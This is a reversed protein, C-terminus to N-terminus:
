SVLLDTALQTELVAVVIDGVLHLELHDLTDATVPAGLTDIAIYIEIPESTVSQQNLTDEAYVRYSVKTIGSSAWNFSDTFTNTPHYVTAAPTYAGDNISRKVKYKGASNVAMNPEANLDWELKPCSGSSEHDYRLNKVRSPPLGAISDMNRVVLIDMYARDYVDIGVSNIYVGVNTAEFFASDTRWIAAPPNTYPSIVDGVTFLDYIDGGHDSGSTVNGVSNTALSYPGRSAPGSSLSPQNAAHWTKYSGDSNRYYSSGADTIYIFERENYGGFPNAAGKEIIDWRHWGSSDVQGEAVLSWDYNGEACLMHAKSDPFQTAHQEIFYYALLGNPMSGEGGGTPSYTTEFGDQYRYELLLSQEPNTNALPIEILTCADLTGSSSIDGTNISFLRMSDAPTSLSVMRRKNTASLTDMWGIYTKEAGLYSGYANLANVSYGLFYNPNRTATVATGPLTSKKPDSFHNGGILHHSIEHIITGMFTAGQEEIYRNAYINPGFLTVGRSRDFYYGTSSTFGSSPLSLEAKNTVPIRSSPTNRLICLTLDLTNNSEFKWENNGYSWNDYREFSLADAVFLSDIKQLIHRTLTDGAATGYTDVYYDEGYDLTVQYFDGLLAFHGYSNEWYYETLINSTQWINPHETQVMNHVWGPITDYVLWTESTLTDEPFRAIVFLARLFEQSSYSHVSSVSPTAGKQVTASKSLGTDSSTFTCQPYYTQSYVDTALLVNALVFVLLPLVFKM